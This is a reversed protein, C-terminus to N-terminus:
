YKDGFAWIMYSPPLGVTLFFESSILHKTNESLKAFPKSINVLFTDNMSIDMWSSDMTCVAQCLKVHYAHGIIKLFQKFLVVETSM